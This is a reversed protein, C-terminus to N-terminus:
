NAALGFPASPATTDPTGIQYVHVTPQQGYDAIVYLRGTAPDYGAGNLFPACPGSGDWIEGVGFSWIAYPQVEWTELTGNKVALFDNADYAWIQERYPQAHPGKNDPLCYGGCEVATGYCYPGTGHTGFFLVSRTGPPFAVGEVRTTLNFTNNQTAECGESGCAPNSLPYFLTTVGPIPNTVGVSAPDFVTTAPGASTAGIISRCCNGTLAPGGLLAQWEVPIPTMHGGLARPPAVVGASFPYFGLFDNPLSLNRGSVGHSAVQTSGYAQTVAVILKGGSVLLGNIPLGNYTDGATGLLGDTVDHFGQLVPAMPLNSWTLSKVLTAPVEVQAVQGDYQAHGQLFLTQKGTGSDYYPTVGNGGYNFGSVEGSPDTAPMRFSGLYSIDTQQTLPNTTADAL